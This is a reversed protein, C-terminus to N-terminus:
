LLNGNDFDEDFQMVFEYNCNTNICKHVEVKDKTHSFDLLIDSRSCCCPCMTPQDSFIYVESFDVM